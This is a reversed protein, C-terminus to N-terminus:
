FTHSQVDLDFGKDLPYLRTLNISLLSVGSAVVILLPFRLTVFGIMPKM